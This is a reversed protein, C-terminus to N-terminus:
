FARSQIAFHCGLPMRAMEFTGPVRVPHTFRRVGFILTLDQWGGNRLAHRPDLENPKKPKNRKDPEESLRFLISWVFWMVQGSDAVVESSWGVPLLRAM